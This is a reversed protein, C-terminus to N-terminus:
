ERRAARVMQHGGTASVRAELRGESRAVEASITALSAGTYRAAEVAAVWDGQVALPGYRLIRVLRRGLHSKDHFRGRGRGTGRPAPAEKGRRVPGGAEAAATPAPRPSGDASESGSGGRVTIAAPSAAPAPQLPARWKDVRREAGGRQVPSPSRHGGSRRRRRSSVTSGAVAAERGVSAGPARAVPVLAAAPAPAVLGKARLSARLDAGAEAVNSAWARLATAQAELCGQRQQLEGGALAADVALREGAVALADAAAAVAAAAGYLAM